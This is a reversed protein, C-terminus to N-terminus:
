RDPSRREGSNASVENRRVQLTDTCRGAGAQEPGPHVSGGPPLPPVYHAMTLLIGGDKDQLSLYTVDFTREFAAAATDEDRLNVGRCPARAAYPQVRPSVPSM